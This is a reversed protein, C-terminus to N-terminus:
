EDSSINQIVKTIEENQLPLALTSDPNPYFHFDALIFYSEKFIDKAYPEMRQEAEWSLSDENLAYLFAGIRMEERILDMRSKYSENEQQIKVIGTLINRFDGKKRDHAGILSLISRIPKYLYLSLLASLMVAFVIAMMIIQWNTDTVAKMNAFRYPSKDIYIFDNYESKFLAYKYDKKMLTTQQNTGMNLDELV